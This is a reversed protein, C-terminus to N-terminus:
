ILGELLETLKKKNYLRTYTHAKVEDVTGPEIYLRDNEMRKGLSVFYLYDVLAKEPEAILFYGL